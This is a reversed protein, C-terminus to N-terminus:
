NVKQLIVYDEGSFVIPREGGEFDIGKNLCITFLGILSAVVLVGSIMYALKKKRMFDVQINKFWNGGEDESM